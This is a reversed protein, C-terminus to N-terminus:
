RFADKCYKSAFPSPHFPHYPPPNETKEAVDSKDPTSPASPLKVDSRLSEIENM